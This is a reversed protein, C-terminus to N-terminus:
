EVEIKVEVAMRRMKRDEGIKRTKVGVGGRGGEPM